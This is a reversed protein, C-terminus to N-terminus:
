ITTAGDIITDGEHDSFLKWSFNHRFVKGSKTRIFDTLREKLIFLWHKNNMMRRMAILITTKSRLIATQRIILEWGFWTFLSSWPEEEEKLMKRRFLPLKEPVAVLIQQYRMCSILCLLWSFSLISSYTQINVEALALLDLMIKLFSRWLFSVYSFFSLVNKMMLIPRQYYYILKRM